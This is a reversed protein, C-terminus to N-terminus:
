IGNSLRERIDELSGSMIKKARKAKAKEMLFREAAEQIATKDPPSPPPGSPDPRGGHLGKPGAIGDEPEPYHGHFKPGGLADWLKGM